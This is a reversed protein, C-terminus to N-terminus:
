SESGADSSTSGPWAPDMTCPGDCACERRDPDSETVCGCGAPCGVPSRDRAIEILSQGIEFPDLHTALIVRDIAQVLADTLQDPSDTRGYVVRPVRNERVDVEAWGHQVQIRVDTM